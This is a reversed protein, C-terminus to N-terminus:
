LGGRAIVFLVWVGHAVLTLLFFMFSWRAVLHLVSTMWGLFRVTWISVSTILVLPVFWEWGFPSFILFSYPIKLLFYEVIGEWFLGLFLLAVMWVLLTVTEKRAQM